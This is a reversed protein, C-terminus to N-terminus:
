PYFHFDFYYWNGYNSSVSTERRREMVLRTEIHAVPFYQIGFGYGEDRVSPDSFDLESFNQITYLHLGQTIEYDLRQYDAYGWAPVVFTSAYNRQFDFESLLSLKKTFGLAFYPGFVNRDALNNSGYSYSFGVRNSGGFFYSANLVAGTEANLSPDDPRGFVATAFFSLNKGLWAYELNYTEDGVDFGLDAKVATEHDSSNIGFNRLFKGARISIQETPKYDVYFSRSFYQSNEPAPASDQRGITGEIVFHNFVLAGEMDEQMWIHSPTAKGTDPDTEVLNLSSIDGQLALWSPTPVAGFMFSGGGDFMSLTNASFERGYPTLVGGGSPSYHCSTCNNYGYRVLEPLAWANEGCALIPILLLIKLFLRKM